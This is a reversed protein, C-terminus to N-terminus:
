DEDMGEGEGAEGDDDDDSDSPMDYSLGGSEEGQAGRKAAWEQAAQFFKFTTPNAEKEDDPFILDWYEEMGSGDEAERWRKRTTPMMQEVTEKNEDDGHEEEFTKWAELLVARDEKEGNKRLDKYGREFVQRAAEVDGAEGEIENGDEDEGGGLTAIEMLAYSIWVKVHSTRELLREYLSRAREREGEGAEFDIYAKWVVEPMDLAQQVALEYIARVREFDEVASEVQTWQIWASSLSPDFTLFKEYLTRVRDFERLRMELEIYGTFLKPKPCMGIGAGLVKRAATVDLRRIEFYAYSLWLKAFTFSKHPVLKIAAKYVDRSRDFDKTDIEEFAAYQLWLYIYRRWYRKEIAPPVNAVAREYVERVRTPNADESGDEKDARYADEELRALSFWADYNTPDYALEEEYQIRRKGLVTLEVGARDGHQKEFKTYQSYLSASKSRPLRALAFKYIVRAREFEKLRTEMRAFAGFVVQAKEVEEEGDGFFELATQFVERAKDPQGRDEEFKAWQVWNKPIPRCAIWREYIASARDLENYREELKIYSQWAKDNPEWQMWREFIQRAGPVNLLLEELYVYKYWLSDVRPLTTIARDFLNRAHNINRAKLEMDTYKTWLDVSRPDVDLAREFVSRSRDFDNQSSEWQAYKIWAMISDRSYRIRGEFETRKRAQFESLEELDQVRQKPAQVGPEQREQAERLLQEATIQVAAPARNRVRPARDRVDRDAM